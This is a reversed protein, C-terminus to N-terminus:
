KYKSEVTKFRKRRQDRLGASTNGLWEMAQVVQSKIHSESSALSSLGFHHLQLQLAEINQARLALYDVMNVASNRHDPLVQEILTCQEQEAKLMGNYIEELGKLLSEKSKM